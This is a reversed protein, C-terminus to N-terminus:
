EAAFNPDTLDIRLSNGLNNVFTAVDDTVEAHEFPNSDTLMVAWIVAGSADVRFFFGDSGLTGAGACIEGGDPLKVVAAPAPDLYQNAHPDPNWDDDDWPEGVRFGTLIQPDVFVERSPGRRRFLGDESPVMRAKLLERATTM